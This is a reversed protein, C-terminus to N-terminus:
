ASARALTKGTVMANVIATRNQEGPPFEGVLRGAFFVLIRDCNPLLEDLESSAVLMAVGEGAIRRLEGFLEAKAGVDIGRTPEDLLLLRVSGGMWKGLVVRQQNGGSLAGARVRPSSVKIALSKILLNAFALVRRPSVFGLRSLHTLSALALNDAVAADVILGQLRRDEPVLGVGRGIAEGPNKPDYPAGDLSAQIHARDAGFLARLFTTRGSGVLGAIGVIEGPWVRVSEILCAAPAEVATVDLVPPGSRVAVARDPATEPEGGIMAAVITRLPTDPLPYSGVLGGDRLVTAISGVRHLEELRHSIYLVGCGARKLEAIVAFLRDLEKATLPASPEDMLVIKADVALAKAIAVLQRDAVALQEVITQPDFTAGVRALLEEASRDRAAPDILGFRGPLDALLLNEAVSMGPILDLEQFICSIGARLSDRPSRFVVEHGAVRLQGADPTEAGTIVKVLTSKGAGNQGVLCHVEGPLVQLHVDHLAVVGPFEKRIGTAELIPTLLEDM